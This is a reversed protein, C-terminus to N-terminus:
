SNTLFVMGPKAEDPSCFRALGPEITWIMGIEAGDMLQRATQISAVEPAAYLVTPLNQTMSFGIEAAFHASINTLPPDLLYDTHKERKRLTHPM